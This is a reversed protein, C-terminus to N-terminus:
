KILGDRVYEIRGVVMKRSNTAATTFQKLGDSDMISKLRGTKLPKGTQLVLATGVAVAEFLNLPTISHSGRTIGGPVEGAIREMTGKFLAILKPSPIKKAKKIMYDNLFDVVSHEFLKYEDFFAFFRLVCEEYSASRQENDALKVVKLFNNDQSLEKLLNRFEGRFVCNRIEQAHLKVGGTNLREFLDYRVGFDSKDNLTTVRVPRLQFNLQLAKPLTEFTM